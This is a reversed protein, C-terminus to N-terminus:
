GAELEAAVLRGVRRLADLQDDDLRRPRDDMVCLTGVVTGDSLQLAMGAYFRLRPEGRVMPNDAFRDDALADPVQFVDVGHIAHACLSMDRPTQEVDTGHRSKFWQREADVLSVLAIPVDLLGAVERTYRDFREEPPSDLVDLSRLVELRRDEDAPIPAPQWRAARRLHWARLKTRVYFGTSPWVLWETIGSEDADPRWRAAAPGVMIVPVDGGRSPALGRIAAVLDFGDDDDVAEVLVVSPQEDAIVDFAKRLDTETIVAFGEEAAADSLTSVLEKTRAVVVVSSSQPLVATRDAAPAVRTRVSDDRPSGNLDIQMGEHAAFVEGEYGISEAHARALRVVDDVQDDTRTPDHHYLALRAADARHAVEVVYEVTSHGWGHRDGYERALYQADHILLDAGAAFAAHADDQRNATVSGGGALTPEHPEHDSAYVVTAGDVEFRYGLTLAPHNLYHTTVHVGDLDLAGEVLDHYDVSSGLQDIAVPFYRYQMQGALVESLSAEAGSPGYIHWVSGAQFLPAFFPLGQIHDWHTHSILIHGSVPTGGHRELLDLGLGHAGTGCDVVIVAGDDSGIEVCSTNGGYRVTTPGAKAISGRTGWFTVRM